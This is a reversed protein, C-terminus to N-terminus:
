SVGSSSSSLQMYASASVVKSDETGRLNARAIIYDAMGRAYRSPIPLTANLALDAEPPDAPFFWDPRMKTAEQIFNNAFKLLTLDPHRVKDDDNLDVRALDIVAQINM